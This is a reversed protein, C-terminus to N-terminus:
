LIEKSEEFLKDFLKSMDSALNSGDLIGAEFNKHMSNHRLEGSGLYIMKQDAIVFKAHTSSQVYPKSSYHYDKISINKRCNSKEFENLFDKLINLKRKDDKIFSQRVLILIKVGYYAKKVLMKRIEPVTDIQMFPSSIRLEKEASDIVQILAEELSLFSIKNKELFDKMGFQNYPPLALVMKKKTVM